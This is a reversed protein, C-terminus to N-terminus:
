GEAGLEAGEQALELVGQASEAVVDLVVGM